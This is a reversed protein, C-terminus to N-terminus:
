SNTMWEHLSIGLRRRRGDDHLFEIVQGPVGTADPVLDLCLHDGAGNAAFPLWGTHWWVPLVGPDAEVKDGDFDGSVTLDDLVLHAELIDKVGLLRWRGFLAHGRRPQGDTVGLLELLETPIPACFAAALEGLERVGVPPRLDQDTLGGRDARQKVLARLASM